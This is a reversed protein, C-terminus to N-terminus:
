KNKKLLDRIEELLVIDDPKKAPEEKKETNKRKTKESVKNFAKVIVFITFAIILFNVINQIFSGFMINADGLSVKISTFDIGGIIVGIFPMVIDNVLSTVIANFAGGIIVAVALDIVNGKSIFVKFENFFKKM